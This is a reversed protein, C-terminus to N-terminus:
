AHGPPYSFGQGRTEELRSEEELDELVPDPPFGKHKHAAHWAALVMCVLETNQLFGIPNIGSARLVHLFPEIAFQLMGDVPDRRVNLDRLDINEPIVIHLVPMQPDQNM